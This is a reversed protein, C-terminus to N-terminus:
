TKNRVVEVSVIVDDEYTVKFTDAAAGDRTMCGKLAADMETNTYFQGSKLTKHNGVQQARYFNFYEVRRDVGKEMYMQDLSTSGDPKFTMITESGTQPKNVAVVYRRNGKIDNAIVRGEEKKGHTTVIVATGVALLASSSLYKRM